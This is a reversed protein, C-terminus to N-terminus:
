RRRHPLLTAREGIEGGDIEVMESMLLAHAIKRSDSNPVRICVRYKSRELQFIVNVALRRDGTVGYQVRGEQCVKQVGVNRGAICAAICAPVFLAVIVIIAAEM